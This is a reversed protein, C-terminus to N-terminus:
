SSSMLELNQMGFWKHSLRVLSDLQEMAMKFVKKIKVVEPFQGELAIILKILEGQDITRTIGHQPYKNKDLEPFLLPVFPLFLIVPQINEEENLGAIYQLRHASESDIGYLYVGLAMRYMARSVGLRCELQTSNTEVRKSDLWGHKSKETATPSVYSCSVVKTLNM